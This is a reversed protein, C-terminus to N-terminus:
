DVIIQSFKKKVFWIGYTLLVAGLAGTIFSPIRMQETLDGAGLFGWVAFGTCFLVAISIFFIHFGKLSM